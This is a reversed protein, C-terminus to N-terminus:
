VISNKTTFFCYFDSLIVRITRDVSSKYKQKKYTNKVIRKQKKCYYTYAKNIKICVCPYCVLSIIIYLPLVLIEVYFIFQFSLM